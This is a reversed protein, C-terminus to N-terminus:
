GRVVAPSRGRDRRAAAQRRRRGPGASVDTVPSSQSEPLGYVVTDDDLWEVQDDVNRTEVLTHGRAPDGLDLVAGAVCRGWAAGRERRKYAIRNRRAVALPVRGRATARASRTPGTAGSSTPRAAPGLTAYFRDGDRAFTVGWFNVDVAQILAETAPVTFHELDAIKSGTATDIFTTADLLGSQNRM